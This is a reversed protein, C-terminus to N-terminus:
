NRLVCLQALRVATRPPSRPRVIVVEPVRARVAVGRAFGLFAVLALGLLIMAVLVALCLHLLEHLAPMPMPTTSAATADAPEVPASAEGAHGAEVTVAMGTGARDTGAGHDTPGHGAGAPAVGAHMAVVGLLLVALLLM